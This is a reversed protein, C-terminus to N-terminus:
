WSPRIRWRAARLAAALLRRAPDVLPAGPLSPLAAQAAGLRPHRAPPDHRLSRGHRGAHRSLRVAARAVASLRLLPPHAPSAHRAFPRSLRHRGDHRPVAGARGLHFLAARRDAAALTMGPSGCRNSRSGTCAAARGRRHRRCRVHAAVPLHEGVARLAEDVVDGSRARLRDVVPALGQASALAMTEEASAQAGRHGLM